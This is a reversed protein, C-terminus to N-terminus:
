MVPISMGLGTSPIFSKIKSLDNQPVYILDGPHLHVDETLDNRSLMKKMDLQSVEQWGNPLRRYIVVKSHKSKETFGGAIEVAEAVTTDGRLDYKGPKSVQGGAIFYPKEFDTLLVDIIPDHLVKSYARQIAEIVQPVTLEEVYLDGAGRLTIYGDPQVTVTQDFEPTIPFSIKLVDSSRLQYRPARKELVPQDAPVAQKAPADDGSQARAAPACAFLAALSLLTLEFPLFWRANMNTGRPAKAYRPVRTM